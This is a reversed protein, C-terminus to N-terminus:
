RGNKSKSDTTSVRRSARLIDDVSPSLHAYLHEQMYGLGKSLWQNLPPLLHASLGSRPVGQILLLDVFSGVPFGWDVFIDTAGDALFFTPRNGHPVPWTPTSPSSM